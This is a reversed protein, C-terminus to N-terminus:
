PRALGPWKRKKAKVNKRVIEVKRRRLNLPKHEGNLFSFFQPPHFTKLRDRLQSLSVEKELKRVNKLVIAHAIKKGRFYRRFDMELVGAELFYRHWIKPPTMSVIEAVTAYGFLASVPSSLYIWIRSGAEINPRRTRLEVTKSGSFIKMGYIPKISILLEQMESM